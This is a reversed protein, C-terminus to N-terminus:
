KRLSMPIYRNNYSMASQDGAVHVRKLRIPEHMKAHGGAKEQLAHLKSLACAQEGDSTIDRSLSLGRQAGRAERGM